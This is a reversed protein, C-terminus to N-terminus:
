TPLGSSATNNPTRASINHPLAITGTTRLSTLMERLRADDVPQSVAILAGGPIYDCFREADPFNSWQGVLALHHLLWNEDDLVAVAQLWYSRWMPAFQLLYDAVRGILEPFPLGTNDPLELQQMTIRGKDEVADRLSKAVEAPAPLM